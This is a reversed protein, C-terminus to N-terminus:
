DIANVGLSDIGQMIDINNANSFVRYLTVNYEKSSAYAVIEVVPNSMDQRKFACDCDLHRHLFDYVNEKIPPDCYVVGNKIENM